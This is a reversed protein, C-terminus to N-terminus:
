FVLTFCAGGLGSVSASISGGHSVMIQRSLALGVGTGERKTTYFPVFMKRVMDAQINLANAKVASIGRGTPRGSVELQNITVLGHILTSSSYRESLFHTSGHLCCFMVIDTLHHGQQFLRMAIQRTM